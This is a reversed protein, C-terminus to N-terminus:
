GDHARGFFHSEMGGFVVVSQPRKRKIEQALKISLEVNWVYTNFGIVDPDNQLIRSLFDDEALDGNQVEIQFTADSLSPRAGAYRAIYDLALANDYFSEASALAVHM